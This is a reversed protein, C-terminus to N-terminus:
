RSKPYTEYNMIFDFDGGAIVVDRAIPQKWLKEFRELTQQIRVDLYKFVDEISFKKYRPDDKEDKMEKIRVGDIYWGEKKITMADANITMWNGTMGGPDYWGADICNFSPLYSVCFDYMKCDPTFYGEFVNGYQNIMRIFGDPEDKENHEGIFAAMAGRPMKWLTYETKIRKTFKIFNNKMLWDINLRKHIKKSVEYIKAM